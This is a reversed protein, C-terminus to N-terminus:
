NVMKRLADLDLVTLGKYDVRILGQKQLRGLAENCRPRSIGAISAIIEQSIKIERTMFPYLRPHYLGVLARAVQGDSNLHKHSAHGGMSWYLRESMQRILFQCFSIETRFLWDFTEFPMVAVRCECLAVVEEHRPVARVISAEGFWAGISLAGHSTSTGDITMMSVSLLGRMVGHWNRPTEGVQWVTSGTPVIEERMEELVRQRTEESLVSYWTSSMLLQLLTMSPEEENKKM